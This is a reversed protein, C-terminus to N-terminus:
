PPILDPLCSPSQRSPNSRGPAWAPDTFGGNRRALRLHRAPDLLRSGIQRILRAGSSSPTAGLGGAFSSWLMAAGLGGSPPASPRIDVVMFPPGAARLVRKGGKGEDRDLLVDAHPHWFGHVANIAQAAREHEPMDPAHEPAAHDSLVRGTEADM